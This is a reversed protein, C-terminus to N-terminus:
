TQSNNLSTSKLAEDYDFSLLERFIDRYSAAWNKSQNKTHILNDRINKLQKLISYKEENNLIFSKNFIQPIISEAKQDHTTFRQIKERNLLRKKDRYTFGEPIVSNHFAEISSFLNIVFNFADLFFDSFLLDIKQANELGILKFIENRNEIINEVIRLANAFYLISPEPEPIVIPKNEHIYLFGQIINKDETFFYAQDFNNLDPLKNPLQIDKLLDEYSWDIAIQNVYKRDPLKKM